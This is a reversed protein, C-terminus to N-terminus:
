RMVALVHARLKVPDREGRTAFEIVHHAVLERRAQEHPGIRLDRCVADFATAMAATHEPTFGSNELLLHLPM